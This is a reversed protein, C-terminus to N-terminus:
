EAPPKEHGFKEIMWDGLRLMLDGKPVFSIAWRVIQVVGYAAGVLLLVTLWTGLIELHGGGDQIVLHM